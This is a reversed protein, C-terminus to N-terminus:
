DCHHDPANEGFPDPDIPPEDPRRVHENWHAADIFIQETDKKIRRAQRLLRAREFDVKM